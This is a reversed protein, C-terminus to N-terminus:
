IIPNSIAKKIDTFGIIISTNELCPLLNSTDPLVDIIYKLSRYYNKIFDELDVM